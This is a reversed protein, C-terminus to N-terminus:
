SRVGLEESRVGEEGAGPLSIFFTSGQGEQSKVAVDGGHTQAIHKVISLGLGTGGLKRSRAKDSRYFREFLRPLHKKAIGIGFDRVSIVVRTTGDDLKKEEASVIVESADESYKVANVVLNVVAQELLTANVRAQLQEPCNLLIRINKQSAKMQCTQVAEELIPQLNGLSLDVEKSESLKEIRSLSLLDEIIAYLQNSQKLIIKLFREADERNDMAGELLTEVYGKISTIPTKLEHSVNAVFDRRINELRRLRTVDNMVVLVGINRGSGDLLPVGNTQLFRESAGYQLVIEDQLPELNELIQKVQRQLDINRVVEQLLMGSAQKGDIAFIDVAAKNLSIVREDTDVALVAESMSAFVAELENRQRVITRIRENLQEVMRDMSAALTAVELSVSGGKHLSMRQSFDGRSYRLACQKMEELPRSIRRSVWLTVLAAAFIVVIAGLAIKIQVNELTREIATVTVAVRLAGSVTRDAEEKGADNGGHWKLPVAVYLMNEQLTRSLRISTGTHGKYAEIIEPRGNHLEMLDADENSDAVVKGSLDIITIRTLAERGSKRCFERLEDFKGDAMLQSVTDRILYARAQLASELQEIYFKQLATSGYWSVALMAVLTILLNPPFIQWILKKNNM